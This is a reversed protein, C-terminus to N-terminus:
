GHRLANYRVQGHTRANHAEASRSARGSTAYRWTTGAVPETCMWRGGQSGPAANYLYSTGRRVPCNGTVRPLGM